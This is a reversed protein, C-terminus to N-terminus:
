CALFPGAPTDCQKVASSFASDLLNATTLAFIAETIVNIKRGATAKSGRLPQEIPDM